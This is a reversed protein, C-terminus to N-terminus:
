KIFDCNSKIVEPIKEFLAKGDRISYLVGVRERIAEFENKANLVIFNAKNGVKIGYNKEINLTKAGNITILDLSNNIEEFSMMQCIHIGADLINMLNGTGLPYWPDSISDQAFCVNLGAEVMEKVRTIGRRKPYTDFRGQLHINETPCAIFNLKSEKLLKFLKYTYANNYSHMACTHSATVKEGIGEIYSHAALVELFRSQEDDTEDCHIDILKDYKLALEIAKKVSKEGFERTYEFHPIAGVVDAGMKLAEEVLEDGGKYAYMGEQPFAIIQMDVIEKLEEKLELMSKLAILKKDTVDVHTRIHQIGTTIQKKLAIKAREKVEDKNLNNKSESWRQIGEFLTGSSNTAGPTHATYVYDLHIHPEVYPPITLNKNLDIVKIDNNNEDICKLENEIKEIIGDVVLIDKLEAQGRLKANKFLIKSM